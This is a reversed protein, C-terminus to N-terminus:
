KQLIGLATSGKVEIKQGVVAGTSIEEIWVASYNDGLVGKVMYYGNPEPAFKTEGSIEYTKNLLELIPAAYHTRGVITFTSAEAAVSRGIVAPTM